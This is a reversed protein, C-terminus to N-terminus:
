NGSINGIIQMVPLLFALLPLAVGIAGILTLQEFDFELGRDKLCTYFLGAGAFLVVGTVILNALLVTTELM